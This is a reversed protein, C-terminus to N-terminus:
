SYVFKYLLIYMMYYILINYIYIMYTSYIQYYIYICIIVSKISSAWRFWLWLLHIYIYINILVCDANCFARSHAWQCAWMFGWNHSLPDEPFRVGFGREQLHLWCPYHYVCPGAGLDVFWCLLLNKQTDHFAPSDAVAPHTLEEHRHKQRWLWDLRTMCVLGAELLNLFRQIEGPARAIADCLCRGSLM